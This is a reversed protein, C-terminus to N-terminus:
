PRAEDLKAELRALYQAADAQDLAKEWPYDRRRPGDEIATRERAAAEWSRVLDWCANRWAASEARAQRMERELHSVAAATIEPMLPRLRLRLETFMDGGWWWAPEEGGGFMEGKALADCVGRLFHDEFIATKALEALEKDGMSEVLAGLEIVLNGEVVKAKV